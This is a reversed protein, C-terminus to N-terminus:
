VVSKRDLGSSFKGGADSGAKGGIKSAGSFAGDLQDAISSTLNDFKPTLLVSGSAVDAM